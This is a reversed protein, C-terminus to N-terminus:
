PTSSPKYAIDAEIKRQFAYNSITGQLSNNFTVNYNHYISRLANTAQPDTSCAAKLVIQVTEFLDYNKNEVALKHIIRALPVINEKEIGTFNQLAAKRLGKSITNLEEFNAQELLDPNRFFHVVASLEGDLVDSKKPKFFNFVTAFQNEKSAM